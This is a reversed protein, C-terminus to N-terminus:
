SLPFHQFGWSRDLTLNPNQRDHRDILEIRDGGILEGIIAAEGELTEVFPHAVEPPLCLVLEFDEGGYFTWHRIKAESLVSSLGQATPIQSLDIRAGVGSARCIQDLADALGDSSDMGAIRQPKLNWLKPLVDLRPKPYQHAKIFKQRDGPSLTMSWQPNLLCELGARSAGHVGTVVILDGPKGTHRQCLRDPKVQGLATISLSIVPSRVVDGGIIATEHPKLGDNMGEYLSEVWEVETDATLSLGVAIGLPCAGMAALDSLNAAVARWGVAHPPTTLDSFHVGDVLVDTTVVMRYGPTLDLVAGDDGVRHAACFRFLRQLLGQEGVERVKM